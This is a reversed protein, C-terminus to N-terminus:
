AYEGTEITFPKNARCFDCHGCYHLGRTRGGQEKHEAIEKGIAKIGDMEIAYAGDGTLSICRLDPPAQKSVALLSFSFVGGYTQAALERYMAAQRWYGWGQYWPVRAAGDWVSDHLNAMCKLDIIERKDVNIADVMGRYKNGDIEGTLIVQNQVGAGQLMDLAKPTDTVKDVAAQVAQFKAKLQGKSPGRSSVIEPHSELWFELRDPTTLSVDAFSGALMDETQAYEWEGAIVAAAKAPCKKWMGLQSNSIYAAGAEVSFYNAETLNM